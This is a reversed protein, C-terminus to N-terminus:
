SKEKVDSNNRENMSKITWQMATSRSKIEFCGKKIEKEKERTKSKTDTRNNL